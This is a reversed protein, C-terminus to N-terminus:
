VGDDYNAVSALLAADAADINRRFKGWFDLEWTADLSLGATQYRQFPVGNADNKSDQNKSYDAEIEQEQPFFDGIAIGRAARAQIVRLGAARLSLNEEYAEHVLSTLVPDDFVTWWERVEAPEEQLAPSSELWAPNVDAEPRLYDPGVTCGGLGLTAVAILFLCRYPFILSHSPPNNV